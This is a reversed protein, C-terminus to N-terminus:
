GSVVGCAPPTAFPIASRDGSNQPPPSAAAPRSRRRKLRLCPCEILRWSLWGAAASAPLALAFLTWPSIAPWSLLILKQVPWGYLYVGYSIDTPGQFFALRPLRAFALTFFAYAGLTALGLRATVGLFMGPILVTVAAFAWFPSFRIRDRFLAFCGGACFLLLLYLFLANERSLLLALYVARLGASGFFRATLLAAPRVILPLPLLWASGVLFTFALFAGRRRVLGCAGLLGACLYCAFEYGISWLSGNVVPFFQGAFTPPTSPPRLLLLSQGLSRWNMRAFYLAPDAAGVAGVLCVSVLSAAIFGPYIRLVRSGLFETLAARRLRSQIILFGSLVFFGAVALDGCTMTGFLRTLLERRPNGDALETAHSLLVLAALVLRLFGFHNDHVAPAGAPGPEPASSPASPITGALRPLALDVSSQV